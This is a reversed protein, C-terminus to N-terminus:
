AQAGGPASPVATRLFGLVVQTYAEPQELHVTHGAGPIRCHVAQSLRSRMEDAIRNFKEDDEGTVLLIPMHLKDLTGWWSPQRGTGLGRLRGALGEPRQALRIARQRELVHAPLRKQSEFLPLAEWARVFAEVGEREIRDALAEDAARRAARETESALGPSASELVLARVRQPAMCAISLAIRGGMSYGLCAFEPCGLQNMVDLLDAVTEEM